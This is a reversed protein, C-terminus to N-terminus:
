ENGKLKRMQQRKAEIELERAADEKAKQEKDDKVKKDVDKMSLAPNKAAADFERNVTASFNGMSMFLASVTIGTVLAMEASISSGVEDTWLKKVLSLMDNREGEETAHFHHTVFRRGQEPM